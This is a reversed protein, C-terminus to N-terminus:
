PVLDYVKGGDTIMIIRDTFTHNVFLKVTSNTSLAPIVSTYNKGGLDLIYFKQATRNQDVLVKSITVNNFGYNMIYATSNKDTKTVLITTLLQTAKDESSKLAESISITNAFIRERSLSTYIAMSAVVAVILIIISLIESIGKRKRSM